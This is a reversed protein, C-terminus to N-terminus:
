TFTRSVRTKFNLNSLLFYEDIIMILNFLIMIRTNIKM